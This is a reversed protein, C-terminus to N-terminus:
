DFTRSQGARPSCRASNEARASDPRGCARNVFATGPWYFALHINRLCRVESHIPGLRRAIDEGRYRFDIRGDDRAHLHFGPRSRDRSEDPARSYDVLRFRTFGDFRHHHFHLERSCDISTEAIKPPVVETDDLTPRSPARGEM